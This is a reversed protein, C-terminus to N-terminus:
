GHPRSRFRTVTTYKRPLIVGEYEDADGLTMNLVDLLDRDDASLATTQNGVRLWAMSYVDHGWRNTSLLAAGFELLVQTSASNGASVALDLPTRGDVDCINPEAGRLLLEKLLWSWHESIDTQRTGGEGAETSKVVGRPSQQMATHRMAAMSIASSNARQRRSDEVEDRMM